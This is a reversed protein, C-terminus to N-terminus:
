AIVTSEIGTNSTHILIIHKVVPVQAAGISPFMIVISLLIIVSYINKSIM